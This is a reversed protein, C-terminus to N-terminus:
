RLRAPSYESFSTEVLPETKHEGALLLQRVDAATNPSVEGLLVRTGDPTISFPFQPNASTTEEVAKWSGDSQKKWVTVYKHQDRPQNGTTHTRRHCEGM